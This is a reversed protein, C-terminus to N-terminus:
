KMKLVVQTKAQHKTRFSLYLQFYHLNFLNQIGIKMYKFFAVVSRHDKSKTRKYFLQLLTRTVINKKIKKKRFNQHNPHSSLFIQGCSYCQRPLSLSNAIKKGFM